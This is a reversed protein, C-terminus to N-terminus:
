EIEGHNDQYCSAHIWAQYQPVYGEQDAQNWAEGCYDCTEPKEKM